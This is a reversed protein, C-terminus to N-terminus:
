RASTKPSGVEGIWAVWGKLAAQVNPLGEAAIEIATLLNLTLNRVGSATSFNEQAAQHRFQKVWEFVLKRPVASLDQYLYQGTLTTVGTLPLCCSIIYPGDRQAKPVARLLIRARTYNYHALVWEATIQPPPTSDLLVYTLNLQRLPLYEELGEIAPFIKLYASIAQRYREKQEANSPPSGFLLYSYLGYGPKEMEQGVLFNRGTELPPAPLKLKGGGLGYCGALFLLIALGALFTKLHKSM